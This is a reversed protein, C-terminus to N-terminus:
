IPSVSPLLGGKIAWENAGAIMSVGRQTLKGGWCSRRHANRANEPESTQVLPFRWKRVKSGAWNFTCNEVGFRDKIPLRPCMVM